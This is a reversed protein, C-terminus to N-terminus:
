RLVIVLMWISLIGRISWALARLWNSSVLKAHVDLDFGTALKEHAPKQIFFTSLWIVILLALSTWPLSAGLPALDVIVLLLSCVLEVLMTPGVVFTTFRAHRVEYDAFHETGVSAFLPYHVVQVFWILGVMFWTASAHVLLLLMQSDISLQLGNGYNSAVSVATM